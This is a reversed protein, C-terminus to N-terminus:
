KVSSLLTDLHQFKFYGMLPENMGVYNVAYFVTSPIKEIQQMKAHM